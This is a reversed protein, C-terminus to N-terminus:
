LEYRSIEESGCEPCKESKKELTKGCHRCEYLDRDAPKLFQKMGKLLSSSM